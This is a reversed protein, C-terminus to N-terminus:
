KKESYSAKPTTIALNESKFHLFLFVLRVNHKSSSVENIKTMTCSANKKYSTEEDHDIGKPICVVM